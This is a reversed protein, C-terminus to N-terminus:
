GTVAGGSSSGGLSGIGQFLDSIGSVVSPLQGTSTGQQAFQPQGYGALALFTNLDMGRAALQQQLTNQINQIQNQYEQSSVGYASALDQIRQNQQANSAQQGGFLNAVQQQQQMGFQNGGTLLNEINQQNFAALTPAAAAATASQAAPSDGIGLNNFQAQRGSYAQNILGQQEPTYNGFRPNFMADQLRQSYPNAQPNLISSQLQQDYPTGQPYLLANSLQTGYPSNPGGQIMLQNLYDQLAGGYPQQALNYAQNGFAQGQEQTYLNPVGVPGQQLESPDGQILSRVWNGSFPNIADGVNGLWSGLSM